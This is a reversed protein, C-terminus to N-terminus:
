DKTMKPEICLRLIYYEDLKLTITLKHAYCVFYIVIQMYIKKREEIEMVSDKAKFLDYKKNEETIVLEYHM